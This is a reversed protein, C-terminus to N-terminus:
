NTLNMFLFCVTTISTPTASPIFVGTTSSMVTASTGQNVTLANTPVTFRIHLHAHKMNLIVGLLECTFEHNRKSLWGRYSIPLSQVETLRLTLMFDQWVLKPGYMFIYTMFVMTLTDGPLLLTLSLNPYIYTQTIEPVTDTLTYTITPGTYSTGRVVITRWETLTNNCRTISSITVHYTLPVPTRLDTLSTLGKYHPWDSRGHLSSVPEYPSSTCAESLRTFLSVIALCLLMGPHRSFSYIKFLFPM